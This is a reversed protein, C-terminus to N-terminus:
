CQPGKQKRRHPPSAPSPVQRHVCCASSASSTQQEQNICHRHHSNCISRRATSASPTSAAGKTTTQRRPTAPSVKNRRSAPAWWWCGASAESKVRCSSPSISEAAQEPLRATTPRIHTPTHPPHLSCSTLPPPFFFSRSASLLLRQAAFSEYFPLILAVAPLLHNLALLLLCGFFIIPFGLDLPRAWYKYLLALLRYTFPFVYDGLRELVHSNHATRPSSKRSKWTEKQSM